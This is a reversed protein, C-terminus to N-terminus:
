SENMRRREEVLHMEPGLVERISPLASHDFVASAAYVHNERAEGTPLIESYSPLNGSLNVNRHPEPPLNFPPIIHNTPNISSSSLAGRSTAGTASNYHQLGHRVNTGTADGVPVAFSQAHGMERTETRVRLASSHDKVQINPGPPLLRIPRNRAERHVFPRRHVESLDITWFRDDGYSAKFRTDSLM